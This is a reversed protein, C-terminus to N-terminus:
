IMGFIASGWIGFAVCILFFITCKWVAQRRWIERQRDLAKQEHPTLQREVQTM